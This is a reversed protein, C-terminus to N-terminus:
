TWAGFIRVTTTEGFALVRPVIATVTPEEPMESVVLVDHGVAIEAGTTVTVDRFGLPLAAADGLSPAFCARGAAGDSWVGEPRAEDGLAARAAGAVDGPGAIAWGAVWISDDPGTSDAADQPVRELLASVAGEFGGEDPPTAAVGFRTCKPVADAPVVVDILSTCNVFQPVDSRINLPTASAPRSWASNVSIPAFGGCSSAGVSDSIMM